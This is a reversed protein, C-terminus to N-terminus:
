KPTLASRARLSSATALGAVPLLAVAVALPARASASARRDGPFGTSNGQCLVFFVVLLCCMAKQAEQDKQDELRMTRWPSSSARRMPLSSIEASCRFREAFGLTKHSSKQTRLSFMQEQTDQSRLLLTRVSFGICRRSSDGAVRTVYLFCYRVMLFGLFSLPGVVSPVFRVLAPRTDADDLIDDHVLSATHIIEIATALM